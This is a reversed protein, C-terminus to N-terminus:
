GEAVHLAPVSGAANRIREDRERAFSVMIVRQRERMARDTANRTADIMAAEETAIACVTGVVLTDAVGGAIIEPVTRLAEPAGIAPADTWILPGVVVCVVVSAL